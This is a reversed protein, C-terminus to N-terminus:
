VQGASWSLGYGLQGLLFRASGKALLMSISITLSDRGLGIIHLSGPSTATDIIFTIIM